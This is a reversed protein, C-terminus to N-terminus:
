GPACKTRVSAWCGGRRQPGPRTGTAAVADNVRVVEHLITQAFENAPTPRFHGLLVCEQYIRALWSVELGNLVLLADKQALRLANSVDTYVVNETNGGDV